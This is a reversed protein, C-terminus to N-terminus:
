LDTTVVALDKERRTRLKAGSCFFDAAGFTFQTVGNGDTTHSEEADAILRMVLPAKTGVMVDGLLAMENMKMAEPMPIYSGRDSEPLKNVDTLTWLNWQSWYIAVKVDCKFLEGYARLGRVYPAQFTVPASRSHCNKVEALFEHGDETVIRYDPIRLSADTSYGEGADEQKVVKAAGLSAAVFGFMEEVHQGHLMASNGSGRTFSASVMEIFAAGTEPDSLPLNRERAIRAFLDMPGFKDPQRRIRTMRSDM